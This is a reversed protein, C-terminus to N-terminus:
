AILRGGGDSGAFIPRELIVPQVQTHETSGDLATPPGRVALSIIWTVHHPAWPIPSTATPADVPKAAIVPERCRCAIAEIRNHWGAGVKSVAVAASVHQTTRQLLLAYRHRARCKDRRLIRCVLEVRSRAVVQRLRRFLVRYSTSEM